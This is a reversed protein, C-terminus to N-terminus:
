GKRAVRWHFLWTLLALLFARGGKILVSIARKIILLGFIFRTFQLILFLGTMVSVDLAIAM